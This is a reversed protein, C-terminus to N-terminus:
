TRKEENEHVREGDCRVQVGREAFDARENLRQRFGNRRAPQANGTLNPTPDRNTVARKLERQGDVGDRHHGVTSRIVMVEHQVQEIRAALGLTEETSEVLPMPKDGRDPAGGHGGGFLAEHRGGDALRRLTGSQAAGLEMAAMRGGEDSLTLPEEHSCTDVNIRHVDMATFWENTRTATLSVNDIFEDATGAFHDPVVTAVGRVAEGISFTCRQRVHDAALGAPAPAHPHALLAANESATRDTMRIVGRDVEGPPM